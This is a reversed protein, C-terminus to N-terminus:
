VNSNDPRQKGNKIWAFPGVTTRDKIRTNGEILTYPRIRVHSGISVSLDINTTAPDEITVGREMLDNYWQEKVITRVASLQAKTNIGQIQKEDAIKMGVIRKKQKILVQIADTLYLEQQANEPHIRGLAMIFTTQKACYVGVNIERIRRERTNADCHEVIGVVNKRKNRIIRGYGSPNEMQCTLFTLDAKRKAHLVILERITESRLLPIDGNLVLITDHKAKKIGCLAADGTGLPAAQTAYTVSHRFNKKISSSRKGVVLVIESTGTKRATDVVFSLIPKGLIEHLVKIKPSYMRKGIGAALIVTSFEINSLRSTGATM